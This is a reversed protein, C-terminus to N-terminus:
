RAGGPRLAEVARRRLADSDVPADIDIEPLSPVLQRALLAQARPLSAVYAGHWEDVLAERGPAYARLAEFDRDAAAHGHALGTGGHAAHHPTLSSGPPVALHYLVTRMGLERRVEDFAPRDTEDILGLSPIIVPDFFRVTWSLDELSDELAIEPGQPAPLPDATGIVHLVRVGVAAVSFHGARVLPLRGRDGPPLLRAADLYAEHLGRVYAAMATRM